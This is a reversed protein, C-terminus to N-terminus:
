TSKHDASEGVVHVNQIQREANHASRRLRKKVDAAGTDEVMVEVLFPVRLLYTVNTQQNNDIKLM